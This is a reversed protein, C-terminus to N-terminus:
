EPEDEGLTINVDTPTDPPLENPVIKITWTSDTRSHLTDLDVDSKVSAVCNKTDVGAPATVVVWEDPGLLTIKERNTSSITTTSAPSGNPLMRTADISGTFNNRVYVYAQDAM